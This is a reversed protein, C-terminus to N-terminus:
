ESANKYNFNLRYGVPPYGGPPPMDQVSTVNTPIVPGTKPM